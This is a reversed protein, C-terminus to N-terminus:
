GRCPCRDNGCGEKAGIAELDQEAVSWPVTGLSGDPMVEYAKWGAVDRMSTYPAVLKVMTGPKFGHNWRATDAAVLVIENVKLKREPVKMLDKECVYWQNWDDDRAEWGIEGSRSMYPKVLRVRTTPKFNHNWGSTDGTVIAPDNVNFKSEM